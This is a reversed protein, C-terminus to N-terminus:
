KALDGTKGRRFLTGLAYGLWLALAGRRDLLGQKVDPFKGRLKATVPPFHGAAFAAPRLLYRANGGSPFYLFIQKRNGAKM